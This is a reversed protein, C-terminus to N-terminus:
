SLNRRVWGIEEILCDTVSGGQLEKPLITWTYTEVELILHAPFLPLIQQLFFRTSDCDTTRDIFVPVHFHVRWEKVDVPDDAVALDLDDYRLLEGSAKRGVTQHLYCSEHFHQLRGIQPNMLRLASSVQVHGIRVGNDALLKLSDEPDEFQLAQHCCDYCVALTAQQAPPLALRDFLEVVDNTTELICGPEPEMSLLIEKGTRQALHDFYDLASQINKKVLPFDQRQIARRFGVPVTSISGTQNEPLWRSLLEALRKTYDLRESFRWDPLYVSQKVPTHHFTGYPFGNVSAVHFGNEQCWAYFDAAERDTIEGAARGSLRLGIPFSDSPCVAKKVVPAYQRVAADMERWSEGPHINTCYTVAPRGPRGGATNHTKSAM